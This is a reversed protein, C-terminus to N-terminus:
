WGEDDIGHCMDMWAREEETLQNKVPEGKKGYAEICERAIEGKRCRRSTILLRNLAESPTVGKYATLRKLEVMAERSLSISIEETTGMGYAHTGGRPIFRSDRRCLRM